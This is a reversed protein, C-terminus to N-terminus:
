VCQKSVVATCGREFFSSGHSLVDGQNAVRVSAAHVAFWPSAGLILALLCHKLTNKTPKANQQINQKTKNM